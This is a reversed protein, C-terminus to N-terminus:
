KFLEILSEFGAMYISRIIKKVEDDSVGKANFSSQWIVIARDDEANEVTVSAHYGEVPLPSELIRYRFTMTKDDYFELREVINENDALTLVRIDGIEKGTGLLTSSVVAPHWRDLAKFGGVLAWIAKAPADILTEEKVVLEEAHLIVPLGAGVLGVILIIVVHLINIRKHKFHRKM